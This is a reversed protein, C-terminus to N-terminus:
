SRRSCAYERHHVVLRENMIRLGHESAMRVLESTPLGAAEIDLWVMCTDTPKSIKGGSQVWLEAIRRANHHNKALPSGQGDPREGFTESLAARAMATLVGMQHIGGGISQRLRRAQLIGRESGVVMSGVPAGLGKSFCVSATDCERAFDSLSGAGAAVADWLRAGDLHVKVGHERAFTTIRRFEELPMIMGHLPNEVVIVRTPSSMPDEDLVINDLIDELTLHKQNYRPQVAQIVAGAQNALHGGEWSLINSRADVMVAYPPQSLLSRVALANGMTGSLVFLGAEHGMMAAVDSQLSETTADERRVDDKYTGHSAARLMSATPVTVVDGPFVLQHALGVLCHVTM